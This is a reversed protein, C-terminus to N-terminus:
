YSAFQIKKGTLAGATCTGVLKNAGANSDNTVTGNAAQYVPDGASMDVAAVGVLTGSANVLRAVGTEGAPIPQRTFAMPMDGAGALTVNVANNQPDGGVKLGLYQGLTANTGNYVTIDGGELIGIANVGM